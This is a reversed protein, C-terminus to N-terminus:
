AQKPKIAIYATVSHSFAKLQFTCNGYQSLIGRIQTLGKAGGHRKKQTNSILKNTNIEKLTSNKIVILKSHDPMQEILLMVTRLKSQAAAEIANNLLIDVARCIDMSDIYMGLDCSIDLIMTVFCEEAYDLKENIVSVLPSNEEKREALDVRPNAQRTKQMVSQHYNKLGDMDGLSIYGEYTQLVNHIDYKVSYFNEIMEVLSHIYAEKNCMEVRAAKRADMLIGIVLGYILVIIIVLHIKTDPILITCVVVFTYAVCTKLFCRVIERPLSPIFVQEAPRILFSNRELLVLVVIYIVVNIVLGCFLSLVDLMFNQRPTTQTFFNFVIFRYLVRTAMFYIYVRNIVRVSHYPSLRLLKIGCYYIILAFLPNPTTVLIYVAPPLTIVGGIYYVAYTWFTDLLLGMILAFALKRKVSVSEGYIKLILNTMLYCFLLTTACTVLFLIVQMQRSIFFDITTINSWEM